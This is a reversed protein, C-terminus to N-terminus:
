NDNRNRRKTPKRTPKATKPRKTPQSTPSASCVPGGMGVANLANSVELCDSASIKKAAVPSTGSIIDPNILNANINATCQANLLNGFDAFTTSPTMVLQMKWMLNLAKTM